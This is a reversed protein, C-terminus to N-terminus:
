SFCIEQDLIDNMNNGEEEDKKDKRIKYPIEYIRPNFKTELNSGHPLDLEDVYDYGIYKITKPKKFKKRKEAEKAM